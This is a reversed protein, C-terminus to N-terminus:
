LSRTYVGSARLQMNGAREPLDIGNRSVNLIQLSAHTTAWEPVETLSNAHADVEQLFESSELSPLSTLRNRAVKVTQLNTLESLSAPLSTLANDSANLVRLETLRGITEPLSTIQNSSVDLIRLTTLRGISNPLAGSARMGAIKLHTPRRVADTALIQVDSVRCGLSRVVDRVFADISEQTTM